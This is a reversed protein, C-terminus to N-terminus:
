GRRFWRGFRRFARRARFGRPNAAHGSKSLESDSEPRDDAIREKTHRMKAGLFWIRTIEEDEIVDVDNIHAGTGHLWVLGYDQFSVPDSSDDGCFKCLIRAFNAADITVAEEQNGTKPVHMDM